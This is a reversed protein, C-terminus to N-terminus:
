GGSKKKRRINWVHVVDVTSRRSHIEFEIGLPEVFFVRTRGGRSEGRESPSAGLENDVANASVTIARRLRSDARTWIRALDNLASELWVVQFM